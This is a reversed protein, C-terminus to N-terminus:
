KKVLITKIEFPKFELEITKGNVPDLREKINELMDTEYFEKGSAFSIKAKTDNCECEYLRIVYAAEENEAPKVAEAIVNPADIRFFYNCYDTLDCISKEHGRM